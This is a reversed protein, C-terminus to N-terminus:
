RSGGGSGQYSGNVAGTAMALSRRVECPSRGRLRAALDLLDGAMKSAGLSDDMFPSLRAVAYRVKAGSYRGAPEIVTAVCDPPLYVDSIAEGAHNRASRERMFWGGMPFAVVICSYPALLSHTEKYMGADLGGSYVFVRKFSHELGPKIADWLEGDDLVPSRPFMQRLLRTLGEGAGLNLIPDGDHVTGFDIMKGLVAPPVQGM